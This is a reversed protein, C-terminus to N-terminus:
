LSSPWGGLTPVVYKKVWHLQGDVNRICGNLAVSIYKMMGGAWCGGMLLGQPGLMLSPCSESLTHAAARRERGRSAKVAVAGLAATLVTTFKM